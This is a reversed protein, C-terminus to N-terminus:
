SKDKRKLAAWIESAQKLTLRGETAEMLLDFLKV